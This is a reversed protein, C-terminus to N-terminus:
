HKFTIHCKKLYHTYGLQRAVASSPKTIMTLTLHSKIIKSLKEQIEGSSMPLSVSMVLISPMLLLEKDCSNVAKQIKIKEFTLLIRTKFM